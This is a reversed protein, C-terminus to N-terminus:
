EPGRRSGAICALIWADVEEEIWGVSRNGLSVPHPFPPQSGDTLRRYISSRSLGTRSEVARRRLITKRREIQKAKAHKTM